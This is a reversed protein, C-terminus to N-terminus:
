FSINVGTVVVMCRFFPRHLTRVRYRQKCFLACEDNLIRRLFIHAAAPFSGPESTQAVLVICIGKRVSLRVSKVRVSGYHLVFTIGLAMINHSKTIRMVRPSSIPRSPFSFRCSLKLNWHRWIKRWEQVFFRLKLLAPLKCCHILFGLTPRLASRHM